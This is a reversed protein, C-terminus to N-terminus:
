TPPATSTAALPTTGAQGEPAAIILLHALADRLRRAQPLTLLYPTASDDDTLEMVLLPSPVVGKFLSTLHTEIVTGSPTEAAIIQAASQHAGYPHDRTFTCEGPDCWSPHQAPAAQVTGDQPM